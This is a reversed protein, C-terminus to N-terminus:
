GDDEGTMDFNPDASALSDACSTCCYTEAPVLLAACFVCALASPDGAGTPQNSQGTENGNKMATTRNVNKVHSATGTNIKVPSYPTAATVANM